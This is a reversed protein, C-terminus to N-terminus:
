EFQLLLRYFQTPHLDPTVPPNFELRVMGASTSTSIPTINEVPEWSADTPVACRQVTPTALIALREDFEYYLSPLGGGTVPPTLFGFRSGVLGTPSGTIEVEFEDLFGDGDTDTVSPVYEYAGWDLSAVGDRDGDIVRPAGSADLSPQSAGPGGSDIAPSSFGIRYDGGAVPALAPDIADVFKPDADLNGGLDKGFANGYWNSSGRSGEVISNIFSCVRHTQSKVRSGVSSTVGAGSNGWLVSSEVVAAFEEVQDIFIAGGDAVSRNGAFTCTELPTECDSMWIGGGDESASNGSFVSSQVPHAGGFIRLGGGFRASNGLFHCGKMEVASYSFSAGGGGTLGTGGQNGEFRCAEFKPVAAFTYVGGGGASAYNGVIRCDVIRPDGFRSVIGGGTTGAGATVTLRELV